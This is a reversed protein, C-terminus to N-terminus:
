SDTGEDQTPEEATGAATGRVGDMQFKASGNPLPRPTEMTWQFRALEPNKKVDEQFKQAAQLTSAEGAVVVRNLDMSFLTLRVGDKPLLRATQYLVELPYGLPDLAAGLSEWRNRAAELEGVTASDRAISAKLSHARWYLWLTSAALGLVILFYVAAAALAIKQRRAGAAKTQQMERVPVPVFTLSQAPAVPPPLPSAEVPLGGSERWGALDPAEPGQHLVQARMHSGLMKGADLPALMLWVELAMAADPSTGSLPQFHLLKDGRTVAAVWGNEEEWLTVTDAALPLCAPSVAYDTVDGDWYRPALHSPAVVSHLLAENGETAIEQWVFSTADRSRAALGRLDLQTYVLDGLISPDEAPAWLAVSFARRVPIAIVAGADPRLDALEAGEAEMKWVGHEDPRWKQWGSAVPRCVSGAGKRSARPKRM